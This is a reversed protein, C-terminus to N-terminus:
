MYMNWKSIRAEAFECTVKTVQEPGEFVHNESFTTKGLSFQTKLFFIHKVVTGSPGGGGGFKRRPPTQRFDKPSTKLSYPKTKRHKKAISKELAKPFGNKSLVDRFPM